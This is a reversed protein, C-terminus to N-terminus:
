RRLVMRTVDRREAGLALRVGFERTQRAVSYSMVGFVGVSALLLAVAAFASVLVTNLWRQATSRELVDEMTRVDYVPQEPDVDRIASVIAATLGRVDQGGRVVLAMRDQARQLYNFYVQPRPDIDLGDHRVHGVV